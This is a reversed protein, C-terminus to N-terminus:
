ATLAKKVTEYSEKLDIATGDITKVFAQGETGAHGVVAVADPNVSWELGSSAVHFEILNM